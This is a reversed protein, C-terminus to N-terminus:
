KNNSADILQVFGIRWGDRFRVNVEESNLADNRETFTERRKGSGDVTIHGNLTRACSSVCENPGRRGQVEVGERLIFLCVVEADHL